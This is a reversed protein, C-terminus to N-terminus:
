STLWKANSWQCVTLCIFWCCFQQLFHSMFIFKKHLSFFYYLAKFTRRNIILAVSSFAAIITIKILWYHIWFFFIVLKTLQHTWNRKVKKRKENNSKENIEQAHITKSFLYKGPYYDILYYALKEVVLISIWYEYDNRDMNRKYTLSLNLRNWYWIVNRDWILGHILSFCQRTPGGFNVKQDTCRYLFHMITFETNTWSTRMLEQLLFIIRPVYSGRKWTNYRDTNRAFHASRKSPGALDRTLLPILPSLLIQLSKILSLRLDLPKEYTLLIM